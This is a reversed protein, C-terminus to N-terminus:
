KYQSSHQVIQLAKAWKLQLSKQPLYIYLTQFINTKNLIHKLLALLMVQTKTIDMAADHGM